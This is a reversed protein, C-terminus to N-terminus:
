LENIILLMKQLIFQHLIIQIQQLQNLFSILLQFDDKKLGDIIIYSLLWKFSFLFLGLPLFVCVCVCGMEQRYFRDVAIQIEGAIFFDCAIPTRPQAVSCRSNRRLNLLHLVHPYLQVNSLQLSINSKRVYQNWSRSGLSTLKRSRYGSNEFVFSSNAVLTAPQHIYGQPQM